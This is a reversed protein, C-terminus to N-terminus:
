SSRAVMRLNWVLTGWIMWDFLGFGPAPWGCSHVRRAGNWLVDRADQLFTVVHEAEQEFGLTPETAVGAAQLAATAGPLIVELRLDEVYRRAPDDRALGQIVAAWRELDVRYGREDVVIVANRPDAFFQNKLVEFSTRSYPPILATSRRRAPVLPRALLLKGSVALEAFTMTGVFVNRPTPGNTQRTTRATGEIRDAVVASQVRVQTQMQPQVELAEKLKAHLQQGADQLEAKLPHRAELRGVQEAWKAVDIEWKGANLIVISEERENLCNDRLIEFCNDKYPASLGASGVSTLCAGALALQTTPTLEEFKEAALYLNSVTLQPRANVATSERRSTPPAPTTTSNSPSSPVLPRM